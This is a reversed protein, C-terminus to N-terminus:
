EWSEDVCRDELDEGGATGEPVPAGTTGHQADWEELTMLVERAKSGVHPGVVNRDSMM